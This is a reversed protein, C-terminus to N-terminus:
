LLCGGIDKNNIAERLKRFTEASLKGDDAIKVGVSDAGWEFSGVTGASDHKVGPVLLAAEERSTVVLRMNLPGQKKKPIGAHAVRAPGRQRDIVRELFAIQAKAGELDAEIELRSRRLSRAEEACQQYQSRWFSATREHECERVPAADEAHILDNIRDFLNM